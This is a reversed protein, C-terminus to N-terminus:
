PHMKENSVGNIVPALQLVTSPTAAQKPSSTQSYNQLYKNTFM